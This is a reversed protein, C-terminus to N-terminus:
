SAFSNAPLSKWLALARAELNAFLVADEKSKFVAKM